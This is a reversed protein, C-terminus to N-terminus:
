HSRNSFSALNLPNEITFCAMQPRLTFFFWWPFIQTAPLACLYRYCQWFNRYNDFIWKLGFYLCVILIGTVPSNSVDERSKAPGKLFFVERFLYFMTTTWFRVPHGDATRTLSEMESTTMSTILFSILSGTPRGLIITESLKSQKVAVNGALSM